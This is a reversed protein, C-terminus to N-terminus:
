NIIAGLNKLSSIFNPFSTNISDIDHIKWNGGLTLAAIFSVMCARHDKDFKVSIKVSEAIKHKKARITKNFKLINM